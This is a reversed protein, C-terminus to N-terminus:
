EIRFCFGCTLLLGTLDLAEGIGDLDRVGDFSDLGVRFREFLTFRLGLLLRSTGRQGGLEEVLAFDFAFVEREALVLGALVEMRSLFTRVERAALERLGTHIDM